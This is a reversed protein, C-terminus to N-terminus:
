NDICRIYTLRHAIQSDSQHSLPLDDDVNKMEKIKNSNETLYFYLGVGGVGVGEAIFPFALKNTKASKRCRIQM